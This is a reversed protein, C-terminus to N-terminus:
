VPETTRDPRRNNSSEAQEWRSRPNGDDDPEGESSWRLARAGWLCTAENQCPVTSGWGDGWARLTTAQGTNGPLSKVGTLCGIIGISAGTKPIPTVGRMKRLVVLACEVFALYSRDGL